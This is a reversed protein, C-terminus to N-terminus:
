PAPNCSLCRGMLFVHREMIGRIPCRYLILRVPFTLSFKLGSFFCRVMPHKKIIKNMCSYPV